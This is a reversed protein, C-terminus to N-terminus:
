DSYGSVDRLANGGGRQQRSVVSLSGNTELVVVWVQDFDGHGSVRVAQRVEEETVRLRRLEDGLLRGDRLLLSPRATMMRRVPGLRLGLWSGAFQLGVLVALALVGESLPVQGSVTVTALTSGLAVTIVLDFANLKALTRKGSLRLVAVLVVYAIVAAVIIKILGSWSDFFM